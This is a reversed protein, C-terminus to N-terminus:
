FEVHLGLSVEPKTIDMRVGADIWVPGLLRRGVEVETNGVGISGRLLDRNLWYKAGVSYQALAPTSKQETKEKSGKRDETKTTETVTGDPLVTRTVTM